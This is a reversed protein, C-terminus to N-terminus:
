FRTPLFRWLWNIGGQLVRTVAWQSGLKLQIVAVSDDADLTGLVIDRVVEAPGRLNALWLSELLKAAHWEDMLDHVPKYDRDRHLDYSIIYLPM